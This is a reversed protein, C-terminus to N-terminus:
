LGWCWHMIGICCSVHASTVTSGRCKALVVVALIAIIIFPRPRDCDRGNRGRRVQAGREDWTFVSVGGIACRKCVDTVIDNRESMWQAPCNTIAEFARRNPSSVASEAM